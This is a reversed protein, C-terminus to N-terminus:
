AKLIALSYWDQPDSLVTHVDFGARTALRSLSELSFKRSIEVLFSDGQAFTLPTGAISATHAKEVIWRMEIAQLDENFHADYRFARKELAGGFERNIRDIMNLSFRASHGGSDLYANELVQTDKVRDVALIFLCDPGLAEKAKTLLAAADAEPMNGITSGPFFGVNQTIPLGNPRSPLAIDQFFDACIATFARGPHLAALQSANELLHDKSIDIPVHAKIQPIANLLQTVKQNNGSGYEVIQVAEHLLPMIAAPVQPLIDQECQTLYYEPMTCISEFLQAGNQDYLLLAPPSRLTGSLWSTLSEQANGQPPELDLFVLNEPTEPTRMPVKRDAFSSPSTM